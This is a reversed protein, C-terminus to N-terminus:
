ATKRTYLSGGPRKENAIVDVVAAKVRRGFELASSPDRAGEARKMDLNVIVTGDGDSASMPEVRGAMAPVFREPGHEGVNYSTYPTVLGGTARNGGFVLRRMWDFDPAVNTSPVIRGAVAPVFREPGRAGVIIPVANDNIGAPEFREPGMEGVTYVAGPRVSGGVSRPMPGVFSSSGPIFEGGGILSRFVAALAWKIAMDALMQAFSQALKAFNIEGTTM